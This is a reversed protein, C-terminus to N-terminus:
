EHTDNETVSKQEDEDDIRVIWGVPRRGRATLLRVSAQNYGEVEPPLEISHAEGDFAELIDQRHALLWQRLSACDDHGISPDNSAILTGNFGVLLASAELEDLLGLVMQKQQNLRGRMEIQLEDLSDLASNLQTAVVGLEDNVATDFRRDHQGTSIAQADKTIESLRNLVHQQLARSLFIMSLLALTVFIGLLGVMNLATVQANRDADGIAEQNLSMLEYIAQRTSVLLPLIDRVYTALDEQGGAANDLLESRAQQYAEFRRQVAELAQEEGDITVNSEALDLAQVFVQEEENLGEAQSASLLSRKTQIDQEELSRLMDHSADVSRFNDSLIRSIAENITFFGFAASGATMLILVAMYAYGVLLRARLNIM